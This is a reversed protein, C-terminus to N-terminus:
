CFMQRSYPYHVEKYQKKDIMCNVLDLFIESSSNMEFIEAVLKTLSSMSQKLMLKYAIFKLDDTLFGYLKHPQEQKFSKFQEVIFFPLSKPKSNYFNPCNFMLKLVQEYPNGQYQRYYNMILEIVPPSTKM